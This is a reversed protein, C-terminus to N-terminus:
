LRIVALGPVDDYDDDQTALALGNAIATAAIWSDNTMLKMGADRLNVRLEAWADAVADDILIPDLAMADGLTRLRTARVSPSAATLVGNKLEGITIISVSLTAPMRARDIRGQELGVFLSTDALAREAPM